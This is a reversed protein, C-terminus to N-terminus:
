VHGYPVSTLSCFTSFTTSPKKHSCLTATFAASSLQSCRIEPQLASAANAAILKICRFSWIFQRCESQVSPFKPTLTQCPLPIHPSSLFFFGEFFGIFCHRVVNWSLLAPDTIHDLTDSKQHIAPPSSNVTKFPFFFFVFCFVFVLSRCCDPAPRHCQLSLSPVGECGHSRQQLKHYWVLQTQGLMM